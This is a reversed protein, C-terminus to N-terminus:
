SAPAAACDATASIESSTASPTSRFAHPTPNNYVTTPLGIVAYDAAQAFGVLEDSAAPKAVM